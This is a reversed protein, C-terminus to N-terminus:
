GNKFNSFMNSFNKAAKDNFCLDLIQKTQEATDKAYKFMKEEYQIVAGDLNNNEIIKLALESADLLALNAGSGSFPSMLHASDGILTVGKKHNWKHGIPLEYIRRPFIEGDGYSIFKHLEPNWDSFEDILKNKTEERNEYNIGNNHLWDKEIKFSVYTRITNNGNVQALIGKQDGLGFFSGPGNLELLDKHKEKVNLTNVEIMSLGSYEPVADSVLPRVKSFAGDAGIVMDVIVSEENKFNLEFQNNELENIYELKYGWYISDSNVSELLMNQLTARDIEPRDFETATEEVYINGSKDMIKIAQGEYRCLQKFKDMLGARKLAKQGMETSLDLTGGQNRYTASPDGEFITPKYGAQQLIRALTLGGPGAGIIAINEKTM